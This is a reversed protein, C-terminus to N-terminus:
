SRIAYGVTWEAEAGMCIRQLIATCGEILAQHINLGFRRLVLYGFTMESARACHTQLGNFYCHGLFDLLLLSKEAFVAM